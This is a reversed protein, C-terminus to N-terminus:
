LTGPRRWPWAPRRLLLAHVVERGLLHELRDAVHLHTCTTAAHIASCMVREKGRRLRNRTSGRLASGAQAVRAQWVHKGCTSMRLLQDHLLRVLSAQQEVRVRLETGGKQLHTRPTRTHQAHARTHATCCLARSHLAAAANSACTRIEMARDRTDHTRTEQASLTQSNDQGASLLHQQAHVHDLWGQDLHTLGASCMM